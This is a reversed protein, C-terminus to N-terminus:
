QLSVYYVPDAPDVWNGITTCLGNNQNGGEPRSSRYFINIKHDAMKASLILSMWASCQDENFRCLRHIGFGNSVKLKTDAGIHMVKGSCYYDAKVVGATM